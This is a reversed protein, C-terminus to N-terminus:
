ISPATFASQKCVFRKASPSRESVPVGVFRLFFIDIACFPRFCPSAAFAFIEAANRPFGFFGSDTDLIIAVCVPRLFVGSAALAMLNPLQFLFGAQNDADEIYSIQIAFPLGPLTFNSLSHPNPLRSRM